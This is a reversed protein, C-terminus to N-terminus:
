IIYQNSKGTIESAVRVNVSAFLADVAAAITDNLSGNM